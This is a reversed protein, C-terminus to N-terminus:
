KELRVRDFVKIGYPIRLPKGGNKEKEEEVDYEGIAKWVTCFAGEGIENLLELSTM